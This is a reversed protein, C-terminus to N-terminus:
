IKYKIIKLDDKYETVAYLYQEDDSISFVYFVSDLLYSKVFSGYIDFIILYPVTWFKTYVIISTEYNCYFETIPLKTEGFKAFFITVPNLIIM